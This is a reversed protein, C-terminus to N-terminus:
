SCNLHFILLDCAQLKFLLFPVETHCKSIYNCFIWFCINIRNTLLLNVQCIKRTLCFKFLQLKRSFYFSNFFFMLKFVVIYISFHLLLKICHTQREKESHGLGIQRQFINADLSFDGWTGYISGLHSLEIFLNIGAHTQDLPFISWAWNISEVFM